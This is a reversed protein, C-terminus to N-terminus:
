LAAELRKCLTRVIEVRAFKKDNGPVLVWPAAETSTRAAM